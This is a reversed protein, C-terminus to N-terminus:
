SLIVVLLPIQFRRLPNSRARFTHLGPTVAADLGLKDRTAVLYGQQVAEAREAAPPHTGTTSPGLAKEMEHHYAAFVVAQYDPNKLRRLGSFYGSLFDAHLEMVRGNTKNILGRKFQLIHAFEHAAVAVIAADAHQPRELLFRLLNLGFIVTGDSRNLEPHVLNTARANMTENNKLEDYYGFGPQVEFDLALRYLARAFARDLYPNGSAHVIEPMGRFSYVVPIQRIIRQAEEGSTWCDKRGSAHAPGFVVTLAGGLLVIRRTIM